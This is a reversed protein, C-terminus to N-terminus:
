QVYQEFIEKIGENLSGVTDALDALYMDINHKLIVREYAKWIMSDSSNKKEMYGSVRIEFDGKEIKIKKDDKQMEVKNVGILLFVIDIHYIFYKTKSKQCKWVIDIKKGGPTIIESYLKENSNDWFGKFELWRKLWKYFEDLDLYGLHRIKIEPAIAIKQRVM